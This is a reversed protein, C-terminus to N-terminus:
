MKVLFILGIAPPPPPPLASLVNKVPLDAKGPVLQISELVIRGIVCIAQDLHSARMPTTIIKHGEREMGLLATLSLEKTILETVINDM